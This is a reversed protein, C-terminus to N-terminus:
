KEEIVEELGGTTNLLLRRYGYPNEPKMGLVVLALEPQAQSLALMKELTKEQILPVDGYLILVYGEPTIFPLAQKVADGTGQAPHQVIIRSPFPLSLEKLTPSVVVVVEKPTMKHALDLIHHVVPRGGLPHLIKPLNSKMRTGQGAALIIIHLITKNM